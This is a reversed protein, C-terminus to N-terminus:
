KYPLTEKLSYQCLRLIKQFYIGCESSCFQAGLSKAVERVPPDLPDTYICANMHGAAASASVNIRRRECM